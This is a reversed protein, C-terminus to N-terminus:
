SSRRRRILLGLSGLAGLLLSGPEPIAKPSDFTFNDFDFGFFGGNNGIVVQTIDTADSQFGFFGLSSPYVNNFLQDPGSSFSILVDFDTSGLTGLDFGFASISRADGPATNWFDITVERDSPEFGDLFGGTYGGGQDINFFNGSGVPTSYTVGPQIDGPHIGGNTANPEETLANLVGSTIPFHHQDTFDEVTLPVGVANNFTTRDTYTTIVDASAPLVTLVCCAAVSFYSVAAIRKKM